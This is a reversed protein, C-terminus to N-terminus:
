LHPFAPGGANLLWESRQHVDRLWRLCRDGVVFYGYARRWHEERRADNPCTARGQIVRNMVASWRVARCGRDLLTERALVSIMMGVPKRFMRSVSLGRRFRGRSTLCGLLESLDIEEDAPGEGDAWRTSNSANLWRM